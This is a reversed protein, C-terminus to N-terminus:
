RSEFKENTYLSVVGCIEFLDYQDLIMCPYNVNEAMLVIRSEDLFYRRILVEDDVLAMVIDGEKPPLCTKVQLLDNDNIGAEMMAHGQMRVCFSHQGPIFDMREKLDNVSINM